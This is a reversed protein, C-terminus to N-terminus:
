EYVSRPHMGAILGLLARQSQRKDALWLLQVTRIVPIM